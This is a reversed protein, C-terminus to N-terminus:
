VKYIQGDPSSAISQLASIQEQTPKKLAVEADILFEPLENPAYNSSSEFTNRIIIKNGPLIAQLELHLFKKGNEDLVIEAYNFTVKM